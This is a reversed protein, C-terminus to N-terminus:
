PALLERLFAGPELGLAAALDAFEFVELRREGGELKAIFSQPRGIAAALEAQTLGRSRRAQAIRAMLRKHRPSRLPKPM